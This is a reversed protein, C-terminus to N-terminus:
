TANWSTQMCFKVHKGHFEMPYLVHVAIRCPKGLCFSLCVYLCVSLCVSTNGIYDNSSCCVTSLTVFRIRTKANMKEVRAKISCVRRLVVILIVFNVQLSVSVLSIM